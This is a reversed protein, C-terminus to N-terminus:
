SANAGPGAGNEPLEYVMRLGTGPFVTGTRTLEDLLGAIAADGANSATGLIRVRLVGNEPDPIIDAESRFLEALPRRPRRKSGQAEAVAPMMRTEARYAIMRIVDLLLREGSPLADRMEGEGLEAVRIHTPVGAGLAGRLKLADREADLTGIEARIREARGPPRTPPRARPAPGRRPTWRLAGRRAQRPAGCEPQDPWTFGARPRAAPSWGERDFVLTVRADPDPADPGPLGIEAPTRPGPDLDKHPM